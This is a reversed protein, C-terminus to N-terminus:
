SDNTDIGAEQVILSLFVLNIRFTIAILLKLCSFYKKQYIINSKEIHESEVSIPLTQLFYLFYSNGIGFM